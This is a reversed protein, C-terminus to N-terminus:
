NAAAPKFLKLSRAPSTCISRFRTPITTNSLTSTSSKQPGNSTNETVRSFSALGFSSGEGKSTTSTASRAPGTVVDPPM